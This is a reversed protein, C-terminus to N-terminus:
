PLYIDTKSGLVHLPVDKFKKQCGIWLTPNFVITAEKLIDEGEKSMPLLLNSRFILFFCTKVDCLVWGIFFVEKFFVVVCSPLKLAAGFINRCPSDFGQVGAFSVYM